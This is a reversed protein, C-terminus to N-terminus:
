AFRWKYTKIIKGGETWFTFDSPLCNEAGTSYGYDDVLYVVDEPKEGLYPCVLIDCDALAAWPSEKDAVVVDVGDFYVAAYGDTCIVSAVDALMAFNGTPYETFSSYATYVIDAGFEGAHEDLLESEEDSFGFKVIFDVKRMGNKDMANLAADIASEDLAGNFVIFDGEEESRVLVGACDYSAFCTIKESGSLMGANEIIVASIFCIVLVSAIIKKTVAPIATLGSVATAAVLWLMITAWNFDFYVSPFDLGALYGVIESLGAFPLSVVTAVFGFYPIFSFPLAFIYLPFFIGALPVMICNAPVSVLSLDGFVYIMIPLLTANASLTASLAGALWKPFRAKRLARELPKAFLILGYVAVFSMLFGLSYLNFPSVFLLIIAALSMGSLPDYRLGSLGAAAAVAVMVTARVTSPSFGCLATFFVLAALVIASRLAANVKFAKLISYLAGALLGVHLGSVALLHATGTYSFDSRMSEGVVASDGFTMAYMFRAAKDGANDALKAAVAKKIKDFFGLDQGTVEIEGDEEDDPCTMEYIVGEALSSAKYPTTVDASLTVVRGTFSIVDGECFGGNKLQLSYFEAKGDVKDGNVTVDTLVVTYSDVKGTLDSSNGVEIKGTIAASEEFIERKELGANAYAAASLGFAVGLVFSVAFVAASKLARRSKKYLAVGGAVAVVLAVAVATIPLWLDTMIIFSIGVIMGALITPFVRLNAIKKM